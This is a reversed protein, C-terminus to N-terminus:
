EVTVRRMDGQLAEVNAVTFKRRREIRTVSVQDGARSKRSIVVHAPNVLQFVERPPNVFRLLRKHSDAEAVLQYGFSQATTDRAGLRTPSRSNMVDFDNLAFVRFGPHTGFLRSACQLIHVLILDITQGFAADHDAAAIM